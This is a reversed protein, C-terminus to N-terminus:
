GDLIRITGAFDGATYRCSALYIRSWAAYSSGSRDMAALTSEFGNAADSYRDELYAAQAERFSVQAAALAPADGRDRSATLAASVADVVFRDGTESALAEAVPKLRMLLDTGNEGDRRSQLTAALGDVTTTSGTVLWM